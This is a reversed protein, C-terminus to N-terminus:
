HRRQPAAIAFRGVAATSDLLGTPGVARVRFAHRGPELHRYVKPSSCPGFDRKDLKCQFASGEVTSSFLFKALRAQQRFVSRTIATEPAVPPSAPQPQPSEGGGQPDPKPPLPMLEASVNFDFNAVAPEESESDIPGSVRIRVTTGAALHAQASDGISLPTSTALSDGLYLDRQLAFATQCCPSGFSYTAEEPATFSYWVSAGVTGAGPEGSETTATWNFGRVNAFFFRAGDPEVSISGTVATAAEFDDNPPPSTKEIRLSIEGETIPAPGEPGNYANGDVAIVYKTGGQAEFTRQRQTYPCDPGESGNGEAVSTLHDIETGTFVAVISPFAGDCTGVTVWGDEGAEWEFWVSHGAPALGSIFEGEEKTAEVNSATVDIPLAGSLVQRNAFADNPPPAALAGAPLALTALILL